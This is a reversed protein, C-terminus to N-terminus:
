PKQRDKHIVLDYDYNFHHCDLCYTKGDDTVHWGDEEIMEQMCGKDGCVNLNDDNEYLARCNDCTAGYM